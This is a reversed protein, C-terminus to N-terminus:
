KLLEEVTEIQGSIKTLLLICKERASTLQQLNQMHKEKDQKLDKLMKELKEKM